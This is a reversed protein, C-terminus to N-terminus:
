RKLVLRITISPPEKAAQTQQYITAISQTIHARLEKYQTYVGPHYKKIMNRYVAAVEDDPLTGSISMFEQIDTESQDAFLLIEEVEKRNRHRVTWNTIDLLKKKGIKTRVSAGNVLLTTIIAKQPLKNRKPKNKNNLDCFGFILFYKDIPIITKTRNTTIANIPLPCPHILFSPQNPLTVSIEALVSVM